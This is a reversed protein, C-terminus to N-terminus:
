EINEGILKKIKKIQEPLNEDHSSAYRMLGWKNSLFRNINDETSKSIGFHNQNMASVVFFIRTFCIYFKTIVLSQSMVWSEHNISHIKSLLENLIKELKECELTCLHHYAISTHSNIIIEMAYKKKGDYRKFEQVWKDYSEKLYQNYRDADSTKELHERLHCYYPDFKNYDNVKELMNYKKFIHDNTIGLFAGTVKFIDETTILRTFEIITDLLIKENLKCLTTMAQAANLIDDNSFESKENKEVFTSKLLFILVFANAIKSHKKLLLHKRQNQAICQVLHYCDIPQNKENNLLDIYLDEAYILLIRRASSAFHDKTYLGNGRELANILEFIKKINNEQVGDKYIQIYKKDTYDDSKIEGISKSKLFKHLIKCLGERVSKASFYSDVYNHFQEKHWFLDPLFYIFSLLSNKDNNEKYEKFWLDLVAKLEAAKLIDEKEYDEICCSNKYKHFRMGFDKDLRELENVKESKLMKKENHAVITKIRLLEEPICEIETGMVKMVFEQYDSIM